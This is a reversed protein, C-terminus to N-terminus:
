VVEGLALMCERVKFVVGKFERNAKVCAYVAYDKDEYLYAGQLYALRAGEDDFGLYVVGAGEVGEVVYFKNM